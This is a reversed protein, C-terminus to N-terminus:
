ILDSSSCNFENAKGILGNSGFVAFKANDFRAPSSKGNAFTLLSQLTTEQWESSM